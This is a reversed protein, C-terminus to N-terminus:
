RGELARASAEARARVQEPDGLFERHLVKLSGDLQYHLPVGVPIELRTVEDDSLRDLYRVLARLSNGHAAVLVRRGARLAPVVADHWFPLARQETDFLSEARPILDPALGAYAPEHVAERPDGPDLEPPRDRYGRRWRKVQEEGFETAAEHKYLGQLAGYHRENLRWSRVVPVWMRDMEELALWLTAIARKLVSTFAADIAIERRRIERGAERAQEVGLETLGVDTWGTFRNERNWLSEGHRLLVLEYM